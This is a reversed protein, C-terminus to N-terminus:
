FPYYSFISNEVNFPMNDTDSNDVAGDGNLDTALVGYNSNEIDPVLQDFDSNDISGDQNIDGQYCAFVGSEIERMNSGYAQSAASSFDYNLPTTGIAQPDASWTEVVNVGKVAIYYSGAAATNFTVSLHGDTHLTGVATYVLAYTVADHLEVTMDEVDLTSPEASVLDWQNYKVSSM